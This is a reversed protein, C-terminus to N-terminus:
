KRIRWRGAGVNFVWVILKVLVFFILVIAAFTLLVALTDAGQITTNEGILINYIFNYILDIM